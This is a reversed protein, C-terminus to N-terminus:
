AFGAGATALAAQLPGFLAPGAAVLGDGAHEVRAGAEAAILAGAAWDWRSTTDEYYADLMGAAVMCLDLAASGIRRIDRVQPLVQAIIGAQRRRQEVDYAFGTGLLARGLEVPDNVALRVSDLFAGEGRVATFTRGLAPQHVVGVLAGDADECAISVAWDALGYLYNVTGDLPDVVWRLGTSSDRDAGEEGLLGDGPRAQTLATTILQEAAHDAESVPDTASTKYEVRHVADQRPLLQAGAAHATRTALQLLEATLAEAEAM